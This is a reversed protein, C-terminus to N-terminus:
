AGTLEQWIRAVKGPLGDLAAPDVTSGREMLKLRHELSLYRRYAGTLTRAKAQDLLGEAALAELIGINDTRRTLAPHDHAWRLVGYQVMFEIDVIGGRGHKIDFGAEKVAHAETMKRRMELVDARLREPDRARSLIEQRATEFGACLAPDGAVARARALAQHEWTWAHASQYERFAALSTVLPGSQGSPRLRMDVAYLVGGPTRTTLFYILRQGLRAFFEENPIARPGATTGEECGEYLFIMDLDSAYGLERGGLKGYGIVAFGPTFTGGNRRCAPEGHRQVLAARALALTEGIVVEAIDALHAGVREPALGPGLDTAAIRLLHSHRFERLLEMQLEVDDAAVAALRARLEEALQARTLPTYLARPDLLEDLVILHQAIWGAIWPSAALLKVLQSLAMPNEVLLALYSARRGIAELLRVLRAFTEEPERTRAAASLLLPVLRDLRVRSEASMAEYASGERLGRLMALVDGPERYGAARLLEMSKEDDPVLWAGALPAAEGQPARFMLAFQEQVKQRHRNLASEFAPWDAFGMGFALRLRGLDDAPLTHTQADAVMQLRHETNRLFVYAARLVDRAAPEFYGAAVLRDLVPLLAREQLAPERGGRVLQLAQAIFEIERIGGPGLKVNAAMGKRAVERGILAKMGRLSELTGYDLYKRYVFPRLRRLLEEGAARDGAVARAKIFAYREWERGHVQYYQEMADFSVALPGSAGHPRLRADVRFVFGDATSESLAQVLRQALRVFREHRSAGESETEDTYAFVLDVDSSFNLERGGLKGMGLVVFGPPAQLWASLPALAGEICADALESLTATVEALDAWGALDRFAVRVTERRRLRRLRAKLAHEDPVGALAREVGRAIEGPVYVRFLDRSAILEQLLEPPQICHRAAFDSGAFVRPLAPVWQELHEHPFRALQERLSHWYLESAARLPIPLRQQASDFLRQASELM